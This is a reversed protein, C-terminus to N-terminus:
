YPRTPESIHILSLSADRCSFGGTSLTSFSHTLADFFSMGGSILLVALVGTLAIYVIWLKKATEAIKPAFKETTPGTTELGMLQAGGVFLKPFIAIGLVIIGMGGLWQTFNRWFLIGKPLGEISVLATAGTTTFGATRDRICM